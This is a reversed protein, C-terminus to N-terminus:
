KAYITSQTVNFECGDASYSRGSNFKGFVYVNKMLCMVVKKCKPVGSLVEASLKEGRHMDM